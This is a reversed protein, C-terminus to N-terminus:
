IFFNSTERTIPAQLPHMLSIIQSYKKTKTKPSTQEIKNNYNKNTQKKCDYGPKVNAQLKIGDHGLHTEACVM